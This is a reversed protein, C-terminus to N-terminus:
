KRLIEDTMKVWCNDLGGTIRGIWGKDMVKPLGIYGLFAIDDAFKVGTNLQKKWTTYFQLQSFQPPHRVFGLKWLVWPSVLVQCRSLSIDPFFHFWIDGMDPIALLARCLWFFASNVAPIIIHLNPSMLPFTIRPWIQVEQLLCRPGEATEMGWGRETSTQCGKNPLIQYSNNWMWFSLKIYKMHTFTSRKM